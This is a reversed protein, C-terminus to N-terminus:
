TGAHARDPSASSLLRSQTKVYYTLGWVEDMGNEWRIYGVRDVAGKRIGKNQSHRKQSVRAYKIPENDIFKRLGKCCCICSITNFIFM